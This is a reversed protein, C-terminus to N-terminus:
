CFVWTNRRTLKSCHPVLKLLFLLPLLLAPASALYQCSKDSHLKLHREEEVWTAIATIDAQLVIYDAPSTISRYLAIDDVYYLSILCSSSIQTMVDDSYIIFLLPGLVLSQPVGLVNKVSSLEGGVAVVQSRDSLYSPIWQLIHPRLQLSSLKDILYMHPVSNFAKRLDFLIYRIENGNDLEKLWKHTLSCLASITSSRSMFFGNSNQSLDNLQQSLLSHVHKEHTQERHISHGITIQSLIPLSSCQLSGQM